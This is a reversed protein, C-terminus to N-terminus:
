RRVWSAPVTGLAVGGLILISAPLAVIGPAEGLLLMGGAIAILPVTLQTLAATSAGLVPLVSYWVAYGLGSAIAGSAIALLIGDAPMPMDAFSLAGGILVLGIPGARLFNGSTAALPDAVGRGRLSYIGWGLAAALMLAAAMTDPASAGPLFLVALGALAILSGLWRRLPPRDGETVAGGFMTVQVGGFLILAGLGADLQLYAYSFAVAYLVLAAASVWDGSAYGGDTGGDRLVVLTWLVAAGSVLRIGTFLAPDMGADALAARNLISNAAFAVLAAITLLVVKM